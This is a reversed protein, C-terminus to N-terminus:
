YTAEPNSVRSRATADNPEMGDLLLLGLNWLKWQPLCWDLIRLLDDM